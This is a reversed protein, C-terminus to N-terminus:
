KDLTGKRKPIVDAILAKVGTVLGVIAAGAGGEGLQINIFDMILVVNERLGDISALAVGFFTAIATRYGKLKEM